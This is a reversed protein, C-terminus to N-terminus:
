PTPFMLAPRDIKIGANAYYLTGEGIILSIKYFDRRNYATASTGCNYNRRQVNFQQPKYDSGLSYGPAIRNYFDEITETKM